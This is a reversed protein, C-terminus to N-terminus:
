VPRLTITFACPSTSASAPSASPAILASTSKASKRDQRASNGAKCSIRAPAEWIIQARHQRGDRYRANFDVIGEPPRALLDIASGSNRQDIPLTLLTAPNVRQLQVPFCSLGIRRVDEPFRIHGLPDFCGTIGQATMRIGFQLPLDIFENIQEGFRLLGIPIEVSVVCYNLRALTPRIEAVFVLKIARPVQHFCGDCVELGGALPFEQIHHAAVRVVDIGNDTRLWPLFAAIAAMRFDLQRQHFQKAGGAVLTIQPQGLKEDFLPPPLRMIEIQFGGSAPFIWFIVPRFRVFIRQRMQWHALLSARGAMGHAREVKVTPHGVHRAFHSVLAQQFRALAKPLRYIVTLSVNRAPNAGRALVFPKRKIVIQGVVRGISFGASCDSRNEPVMAQQLEAPVAPM